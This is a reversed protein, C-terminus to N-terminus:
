ICDIKNKQKYYIISKIFKKILSPSKTIGYNPDIEKVIKITQDELLDYPNPYIIDYYDYGMGIWIFVVDKHLIGLNRSYAGNMNKINRIYQININNNSEFENLITELILSDSSCDDIIVIENPLVTQSSISELTKLIVLSDNYYPIVISTTCM